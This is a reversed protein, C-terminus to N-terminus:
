NFGVRVEAEAEATREVRQELGPTLLILWDATQQIVLFSRFAIVKELLAEYVNFEATRYVTFNAWATNVQAAHLWGARARKAARTFKRYVTM